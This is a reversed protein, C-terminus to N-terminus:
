PKTLRAAIAARRRPDASHDFYYLDYFALDAKVNAVAKQDIEAIYRDLHAEFDYFTVAPAHKQLAKMRARDYRLVYWFGNLNDRDKFAVGTLHRYSPPAWNQRLLDVDQERLYDVDLPGEAGALTTDFLGDTHVAGIRSYWGVMGIGCCTAVKLEGGGDRVKRFQEGIYQTHHRMKVPELGDVPNFTHTASMEFRHSLPAVMPLGGLTAGLAAAAMWSRSDAIRHVVAEAGVLLLVIDTVYVQGYTKSAGLVTVALMHTAVGLALYRRLDAEREPVDFRWWMGFLVALPLLHEGLAVASLRTMGLGVPMADAGLAYFPNPILTGYFWLKFAILALGAVSPALYSALKNPARLGTVALGAVWFLLHDPRLMAAITTFIGAWVHKRPDESALAGAAALTCLAVSATELGSTAFPIVTGQSLILIGAFPIYVRGDDTEWLGQGIRLALAGLGIYSLVTLVVSVTPIELGSLGGLALLLTWGLNAVGEVREGANFVPGEGALVNSSHRFSIFANDLLSRHRWAQGLGAVLAVGWVMWTIEPSAERRTYQLGAFLTAGLLAWVAGVQMLEWWTTALEGLM